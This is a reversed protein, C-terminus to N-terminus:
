HVCKVKKTLAFILFYITTNEPVVAEIRMGTEVKGKTLKKFKV